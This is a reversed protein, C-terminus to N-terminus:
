GIRILNNRIKQNKFELQKEYSIAQLQCGGCQRYYKCPPTVRFPSPTEVKELRAYAYSKKSKMIKATVVDGPVADKVFLTFGDVKGIGEGDTGIDDITVTVLDNKQYEKM